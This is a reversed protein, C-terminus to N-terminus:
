STADTSGSADEPWAEDVQTYAYLKEAKGALDEGRQLWDVTGDGAAGDLGEAQAAHLQWRMAFHKLAERPDAAVSQPVHDTVAEPGTIVWYALDPNNASSIQGLFVKKPLMWGAKGRADATVAGHERAHDACAELQERAWTEVEARLQAIAEERSPQPDTPQSM